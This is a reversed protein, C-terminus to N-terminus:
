LIPVKVGQVSGAYHNEIVSVTNGVWQAITHSPIGSQLCLTIFTHRTNYPPLYERVEGLEVLRGLVFVWERNRFNHSDIVGGRPAPFVLADSSRSSLLPSLSNLLAALQEGIPFQRSQGTKTGQVKRYDSPIAESFLIYTDFVHRKRLAVVEEIRAGTMFLFALYSYYHSHRQGGTWFRDEKFAALIIDKEERSFPKRTHSGNKKQRKLQLATFPNSDILKSTVAWDCCAKLQVLMRRSVEYSYSDMLWDRIAIAQRLDDTPMEKIRRAVRGYDRFLTSEALQKEKFRSYLEWLDGLGIRKIVSAGVGRDMSPNSKNKLDVGRGEEEGRKRRMEHQVGNPKYRILSNDFEGKMMDLEIERAKVEAVKIGLADYDLGLSLYFRKGQWRWRLQIRGNSEIISVAGRKARGGM